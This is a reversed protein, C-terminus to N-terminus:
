PAAGFQTALAAIEADSLAKVLRPMATGARTGDRYARLATAIQPATLAYFDPVASVQGPAGHCVACSLALTDQARLATAPCLALAILLFSSTRM